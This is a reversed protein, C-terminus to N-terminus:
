DRYKTHCEKCSASILKFQASLKAPDKEGAALMDELIQSKDSNNQLLQAFDRPKSGARDGSVLIRLVDAMRGAEQVAVIDPHNAPTKWGAKEVAKLRDSIEDIEVM